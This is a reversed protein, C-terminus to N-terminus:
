AVPKTLIVLDQREQIRKPEYGEIDLITAFARRTYAETQLTLGWGRTKRRLIDHNRGLRSLDYDRHLIGETRLEELSTGKWM